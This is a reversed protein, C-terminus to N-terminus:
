EDEIEESIGLEKLVVDKLSEYKKLWHERSKRVIGLQYQLREIEDAAEECIREGDTLPDRRLRLREVINSMAM